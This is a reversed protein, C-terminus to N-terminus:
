PWRTLVGVENNRGITKQGPFCGYIKEYSFGTLAAMENIRIIRKFRVGNIRGIM